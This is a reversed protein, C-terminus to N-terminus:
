SKSRQNMQGLRQKAKAATEPDIEFGIACCGLQRAAVLTTGSGAFFDVVTSGPRTLRKIYYLADPLRQQWPHWDKERVGSVGDRVFTQVDGRHGKLFWLMPKWTNEIGLYNLQVHPGNDAQCSILWYYKLHAEMAPLVANLHAQGSYIILSGGPKLIRAAEKAAAGYDPIASEDYPPDTFVLQVSEDAIIQPSLEQFDGVHLGPAIEGAPAFLTAKRADDRAQRSRAIERGRIESAAALVAQEGHAAIIAQVDSHKLREGSEARSIVEDRAADPTSPAALLRLSYMPLNPCDDSNPWQAAIAIFDEAKDSSWGFERNLWPLWHGHGCRKKCQTLLKGIEIVDAVARKYLVRIREAREALFDDDAATTRLPRRVIQHVIAGM